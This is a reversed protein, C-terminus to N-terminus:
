RGTSLDLGGPSGNLRMRTANDRIHWSHDSEADSVFTRISYNGRFEVALDHTGSEIVVDEISRGLIHTMPEDAIASMTEVSEAAATVQSSGLLVGNPGRLHWIPEVWLIIGAEDGPECDIYLLLSDCALRRHRIERGVLRSKLSEFFSGPPM